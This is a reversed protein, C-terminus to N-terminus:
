GRRAPTTRRASCGRGRRDRVQPQQEDADVRAEPRGRRLRREGMGAVPEIGREHGGPDEGSSGSKTSPKVSSSRAANVRAAEADRVEDFRAVAAGVLERAVLQAGAGLTQPRVDRDPPRADDRDDADGGVAVRERLRLRTCPSCSSGSSPASSQTSGFGLPRLAWSVTAVSAPRTHRAPAPRPLARAGAGPVIDKVISELMRANFEVGLQNPVTVLVTDAAAVAADQALEAAIM